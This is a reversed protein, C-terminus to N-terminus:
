AIAKYHQIIAQRRQDATLGQQTYMKARVEADSAFTVNEVACLKEAAAPGLVLPGRRATNPATDEMHYVLKHANNQM